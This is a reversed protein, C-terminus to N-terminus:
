KFAQDRMEKLRQSLHVTEESIEFRRDNFQKGKSSELIALLRYQRLLEQGTVTCNLGEKLNGEAMKRQAMTLMGEIAKLRKHKNYVDLRLSRRIWYLTAGPNDGSMLREAMEWSLNAHNPSSILSRQLVRVSRDTPLVRSLAIATRVSLPNWALSQQLLAEKEAPESAQLAQQYFSVGKDASYSLFVLM